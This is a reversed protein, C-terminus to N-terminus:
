RKYRISPSPNYGDVRSHCQCPQLLWRNWTRIFASEATVSPKYAKVLAKIQKCVQPSQAHPIPMCYTTVAHFLIKKLVLCGCHTTLNSREVTVLPLVSAGLLNLRAWHVQLRGVTSLWPSYALASTCTCIAFLYMHM